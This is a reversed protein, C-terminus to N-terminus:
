AIQRRNGSRRKAAYLAKDAREVLQQWNEDEPLMETVGFSCHLTVGPAKAIALRSLSLEIRAMVLMAQEANSGRLILVFEDGGLRGLLDDKRLCREIAEAFCQLAIDGVAHGHNDNIQKFGDLDCVAVSFALRQRKALAFANDVFADLGRRNLVSTLPDIYSQHALKAALDGAVMLIAALGACIYLTPMGWTLALRYANRAEETGTAALQYGLTVVYCQFVAAMVMIAFYILEAARLPRNAPLVTAACTALVIGTYLPTVFYLGYAPQGFAVTLACLGCVGLAILYLPVQSQNPARRVRAGALSLTICAILAMGTVFMALQSKWALGIMNAIWQIASAVYCGSWLLIHRERGFQQWALFLAGALAISTLSLLALLVNASMM